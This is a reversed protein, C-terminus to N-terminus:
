PRRGTRTFHLLERGGTSVSRDADEVLASCIAGATAVDEATQMWVTEVADLIWHYTLDRHDAEAVAQALVRSSVLDRRELLAEAVEHPVLTNDDMLLLRLLLADVQPQGALEALKRGAEVRDTPSPSALLRDIDASNDNGDSHGVFGAQRVNAGQRVPRELGGTGSRGM